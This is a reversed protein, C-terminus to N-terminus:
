ESFIDYVMESIIQLDVHGGSQIFARVRDFKVQVAEAYGFVISAVLFSMDSFYQRAYSQHDDAFRGSLAEIKDSINLLVDDGVSVNDILAVDRCYPLSFSIVKEPLCVGMKEWQQQLLAKASRNQSSIKEYHSQTWLGYARCGFFRNEYILCEQQDLFPCSPIEVPNLIFYRILRDLFQIRKSEPFQMVGKLASLAEILTSEPLL